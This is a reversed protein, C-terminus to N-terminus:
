RDSSRTRTNTPRPGVQDIRDHIRTLGDEIRELKRTNELHMQQRGEAIGRGLAELKKEFDERTVYSSLLKTHEHELDDVKRRYLEFFAALLAM